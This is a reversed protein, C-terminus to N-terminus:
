QATILAVAAISAAVRGIMIINRVCHPEEVCAPRDIEPHEM